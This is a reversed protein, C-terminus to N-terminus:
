QIEFEAYLQVSRGRGSNERYTFFSKCLRYTGAPLEGYINGYNVQWHNSGWSVRIAEMSWAVNEHTPLEEVREWGLATERELYYANGTEVSGAVFGIGRVCQLTASTATANEVTLTLGLTKRRSTIYPVMLACLIMVAIIMLSTIAIWKKKM